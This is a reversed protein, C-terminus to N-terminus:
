RGLRGSPQEGPSLPEPLEPVAIVPAEFEIPYGPRPRYMADIWQLSDRLLRKNGPKFIPKWGPVEPHPFRAESRPLAYQIVLSSAPNDWDILPQALENWRELILLNTYRVQPSKSGRRHLFFRGGDIGGHCRSTACNPILWADHVRQRFMNLAPPESRVEIRSYLERAKLQFMLDVIEIPDARFLKTRGTSDTPILPSAGYGELVERISEPSIFIQAPPNRFDIEYVRILNVDESSLHEKPLLNQRQIPVTRETFEPGSGDERARLSGEELAIQADVIRLLRIAAPLQSGDVIERLETRALDYAGEEFLWSALDFRRLYQDPEIAERAKAYKAELPLDIFAQVVSERPFRAYVGEIRMVVVDFDDRVVTGRLVSGDRLQLLGLSPTELDLLPITRMIRSKSFTRIDDDSTRISLLSEDEEIVTGGLEEYRDVWLYVRKESPSAEVPEITESPDGVPPSTSPMDDEIGPADDETEGAPEVPEADTTDPAPTPAPTPSPTPAPPPVPDASQGRTPAAALTGLLVATAALVGVGALFTRGITRLSSCTSPSAM